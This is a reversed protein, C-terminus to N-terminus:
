FHIQVGYGRQNAIFNVEFNSDNGGVNKLENNYIDIGEKMKKNKGALIPISAVVCGAGIYTAASPYHSDSVLDVVLDCIILAGGFGLLFGGNSEKNLGSKYTKYAKYNTFLLKKTERTAIQSGNVYYKGKELKIEQSFSMITFCLALTLLLKKM